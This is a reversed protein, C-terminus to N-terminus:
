CAYAHETNQQVWQKIHQPTKVIGTAEWTSIDETDPIYGFECALTRCGASNGARIDREADGIYVCQEPKIQLSKCAKYIADPHPKSKAVEDGSVVCSARNYLNLAMLLPDTLYKPKNTVIGWPIEAQELFNLVDDMGEFLTSHTAINQQYFAILISQLHVLREDELSDGFGLKLLGTAGYSVYPRITEYPLQSHGDAELAVNLAAALDPATDLLTGDLDFLVAQLPVPTSVTPM